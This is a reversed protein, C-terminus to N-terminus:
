KNSLNIYSLSIFSVLAREIGDETEGVVAIDVLHGFEVRGVVDM